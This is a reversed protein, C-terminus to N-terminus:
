QILQLVPPTQGVDEDAVIQADDLEHRVHHCDHIVTLDDFEAWGLRDIGIRLLFIGAPQDFSSGTVVQLM